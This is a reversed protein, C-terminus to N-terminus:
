AIKCIEESHLDNSGLMLDELHINSTIVASLEDVVEDSISNDCSSLTRLM